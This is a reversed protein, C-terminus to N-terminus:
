GRRAVEAKIAEEDFMQGFLFDLAEWHGTRVIPTDGNAIATDYETQTACEIWANM